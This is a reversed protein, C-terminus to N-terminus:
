ESRLDKIASLIQNRNKASLMWKPLRSGISRNKINELDRERHKAGIVNELYELHEYNYAWLLGEKLEKQLWLPNKFFPDVSTNMWYTRVEIDKGSTFKLVERPVERLFKNYGCAACIIKVGAEGPGNIKGSSKVLAQKKCNPCVVLIEQLFDATTKEYAKFREKRTDM